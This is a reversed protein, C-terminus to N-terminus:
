NIDFEYPECPMLDYRLAFSKFSLVAVRVGPQLIRVRVEKCHQVTTYAGASYAPQPQCVTVMQKSCEKKFTVEVLTAEAQVPAPSYTITCVDVTVEESLSHSLHSLLKM